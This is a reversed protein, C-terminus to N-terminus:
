QIRYWVSIPSASFIYAAALSSTASGVGISNTCTSFAPGSTVAPTTASVNLTGVTGGVCSIQVIQQDYPLTPLSLNLTTIAGGILIVGINPSVTTTVTTGSPIIAYTRANRVAAMNTYVGPGGPGGLGVPWAENGTMCCQQIVQQALAASLGLGALLGLVVLLRKM